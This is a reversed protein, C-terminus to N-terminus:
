VLNQELIKFLNYQEKIEQLLEKLSITAVAITQDGAGYYVFIIGNVVVVGCSFVTGPRLGTNEYDTEPELIPYDLRARVVSPFELDLLIAGLRYKNDYKSLSHYILLWGDNTKIPPAAIGVKLSDWKNERPSLLISGKLWSDNKFELDPVYDIWICPDIRHLFVYKNNVKEPFLCSNKDDIGPPSILIPKEWKWKKNLFDHTSISTLAVRTPHKADYATYCMYLRDGFPTIRPDECGSSGGHQKKEFSERPVYIPEDLREEIIFGDSSSAYGLVSTDDDGQARYVLYTKDDIRVAATNLTYRSEWKNFPNPTIIPNAPYRKLKVWNSTLNGIHTEALCDLIVDKIKAIALCCTTDAAGYYIYLDENNIIAGSPFVINSVMGTLEYNEQPVMLPKQSRGIIKKPNVLDLLVAEIGFVKNDSFYNQIYSYIFLWGFKTKLPPAGVEIHDQSNRQLPITHFDLEDYWKNWYSESWIDEEREFYAICIKSPPRDTNVTLIASMKGNIKEPFLAMAKSNFTTVPKKEDIKKLDRSIALGIKISDPTFPYDSLATYFIYYKDNFKTIRPDECCFQEWPLEPKILQERNVFSAGDKSTAAGISSIDMKIGSPLNVESIARYLLKTEGRDVVACGNLVAKGEWQSLPIPSLIPNKWHRKIDVM